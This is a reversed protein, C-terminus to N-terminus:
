HSDYDLEGSCQEFVVGRHARERPLDGREHLLAMFNEDHMAAAAEKGGGELAHGDFALEDSAQADGVAFRAIHGDAAIEASPCDATPM